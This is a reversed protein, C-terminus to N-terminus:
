ATEREQDSPNIDDFPSPVPLVTLLFAGPIVFVIAVILWVSLARRPKPKVAIVLTTVAICITAYIVLGLLYAVVYFPVDIM